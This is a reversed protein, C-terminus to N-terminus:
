RWGRPDFVRVSDIVVNNANGGFEILALGDNARGLSDRNGNVQVNRLQIGACDTCVGYVACTQTLSSVVLTARTTSSPSGLTTLVQGQATFQIPNKILITSSPCLSVITKPGGYFQSAILSPPSLPSDLELFRSVFLSNIALDDYKGDLCTINAPPSPRAAAPTLGGLLGLVGNTM